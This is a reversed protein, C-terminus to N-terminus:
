LILNRLLFLRELYISDEHSYSIFIKLPGKTTEVKNMQSHLQSQAISSKKSIAQDKLFSLCNGKLSAALYLADKNVIPNGLKTSYCYVAKINPIFTLLDNSHLNRLPNHGIWLAKLTAFSGEYLPISQILNGTINLEELNPLLSIEYPLETLENNGLNLIKLKELKQVQKPFNVIENNNLILIKLNPLEFLKAFLHRIRNGSLNLVELYKLKEIEKPILSIKNNSLDLKYLKKVEFIEKPFEKM